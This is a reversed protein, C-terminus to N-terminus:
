LLHAKRRRSRIIDIKCYGYTEIRPPSSELINEYLKIVKENCTKCTFTNNQKSMIAKPTEAIKSKNCGM